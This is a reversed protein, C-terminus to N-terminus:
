VFHRINRELLLSNVERDLIILSYFSESLNASNDKPIHVYCIISSPIFLLSGSVEPKTETFLDYLTGTNGYTFHFYDFWIIKGEM